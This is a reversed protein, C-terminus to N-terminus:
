KGRPRSREVTGLRVSFAPRSVQESRMREAARAAASERKAIEYIENAAPDSVTIESDATFIVEDEVLRIEGRLSLEATTAADICIRFLNDLSLEILDLEMALAPIKDNFLEADDENAARTIIPAARRAFTTIKSLADNEGATPDLIAEAVAQPLHNHVLVHSGIVESSATITAGVLPTGDVGVVHGLIRGTRTQASASLSFLLLVGVMLLVTVRHRNM